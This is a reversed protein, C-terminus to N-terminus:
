TTQYQHFWGLGVVELGHCVMKCHQLIRVQDLNLDPDLNRDQCHNRDLGPGLDQDRDLGLALKQFLFLFSFSDLINGLLPAVSYIM